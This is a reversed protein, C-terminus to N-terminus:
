LFLYPKGKKDILPTTSIEAWFPSKNKRKVRVQNVLKGTRLVESAGKLAKQRDKPFIVEYVNTGVFETYELNLLRLSAQNCDLVKGDLGVLTIGDDIGNLVEQLRITTNGEAKKSDIQKSGFNFCFTM